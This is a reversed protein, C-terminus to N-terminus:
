GVSGEEGIAWGNATSVWDISCRSRTKRHHASGVVRKDEGGLLGKAHHNLPGMSKGIIADLFATGAAEIKDDDIAVIRRHQKGDSKLSSEDDAAVVEKPDNVPLSLDDLFSAISISTDDESKEAKVVIPVRMQRTPKKKVENLLILEGNLSDSNPKTRSSSSLLYDDSGVTGGDDDNSEQITALANNNKTPLTMWSRRNAALRTPPLHSAGRPSSSEVVTPSAGSNNNSSTDNEFSAALASM